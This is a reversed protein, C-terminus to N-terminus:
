LTRRRRMWGVLSAGMTGLLLAGPAPVAPGAQGFHINDIGATLISPAYELRVVQGSTAVLGFYSPSTDGPTTTEEYSAGTSDWITITIMGGADWSIVDSGVATVGPAFDAILPTYFYNAFLSDTIIAPSYGAPAIYLDDTSGGTSSFVVGPPIDGPSIPGQSTTTDLTQLIEDGFGEFDEFALSAGGAAALFSAQDSYTTYILPAAQAVGGLVALLTAALVLALRKM